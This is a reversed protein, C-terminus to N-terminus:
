EPPKSYRRSCIYLRPCRDWEVREEFMAWRRPTLSHWGTCNSWRWAGWGCHGKTWFELGFYKSVQYSQGPPTLVWVHNLHANSSMVRGHVDNNMHWCHDPLHNVSRSSDHYRGQDRSSVVQMEYRCQAWMPYRSAMSQLPFSACRISGPSQRSFTTVWTLRCVVFLLPDCTSYICVRFVAFSKYWANVLSKLSLSVFDCCWAHKENM